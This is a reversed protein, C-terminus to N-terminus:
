GTRRVAAQEKIFSWRSAPPMGVAIWEQLEQSSFLLKRCLRYRRLPLRGSRILKKATTEGISIQGCLQRLDILLRPAADLQILPDPM